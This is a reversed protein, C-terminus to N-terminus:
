VAEVEIVTEVPIAVEIAKQKFNSVCILVEEDEKVEEVQLLEKMDDSISISKNKVATALAEPNAPVTVPSFELLVWKTFLFRAEALVPNAKVDEPTPRRGEIPKFGVSFANLFGGKFLQWIEEARDTTAFKIKATIRKRGRKVWLAKGIPPEFTNHSWPVVPNKQFDNADMGKPVLVEQDRDVADTSIIAIVSREDENIDTAKCLGFSEKRETMLNECEILEDELEISM